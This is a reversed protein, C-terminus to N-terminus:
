TTNVLIWGLWGDQGNYNALSSSGLSFTNEIRGSDMWGEHTGYKPIITYGKTHTKPMKRKTIKHNLKQCNAYFVEFSAYNYLIM